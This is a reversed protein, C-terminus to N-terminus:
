AERGAQVDRGLPTQKWPRVIETWAAQDLSGIQVFIEQARWLPRQFSIEPKPGHLAPDYSAQNPPAGLPLVTHHDSNVVPKTYRVFVRNLGLEDFMRCYDDIHIHATHVNWDWWYQKIGYHEQMEEGEFSPHFIYLFDTAAEAASAIVRQVAHLSPLHELFDMMSVFRVQQHVDLDQADGQVGALGLSRVERVRTINLDVGLGSAASFRTGCHRLSAGRSCGLDIFDYTSWDVGVLESATANERDRESANM